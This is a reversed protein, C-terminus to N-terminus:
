RPVRQSRMALVGLGLVLAVCWGLTIALNPAEVHGSAFNRLTETIQSIPQYQVFPQVWGPFSEVPAMGTSLLVLLLQPILLLQSSTDSRKARAGIADAGFSLALTLTLSLVVFAVGLFFGGEMRFGFAYAVSIAAILAMLGRVICYSMRAVLPAYVSIPLTRLRVGFETARENAAIDATNLAGFLMAQVVVAPLVYQAYTIGGTDIVERLAIVFGIFTLIPALVAFVIDLNRVGSRVLRETLALVGTM